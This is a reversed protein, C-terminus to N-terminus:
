RAPVGRVVLGAGVNKTVCAAAGVTSHAGVILGPLVASQTGLNSCPELVCNGSIAVLPNITVFDGIDTDHGITSNLNIHVHKGVSVNTTVAVGSCLVSGAGVTTRAGVTATPHVITAAQGGLTNLQHALSRRTAGDGIGITYHWGTPLRGASAVGGLIEVGLHGVRELDLASPRDDLFGLLNWTAGITNVADVVDAVERGFGGCGVIVLDITM